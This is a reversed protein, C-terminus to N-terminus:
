TLPVWESAHGTGKAKVAATLREVVDRYQSREGPTMPWVNPNLGNKTIGVSVRYPGKPQGTCIGDGGALRAFTTHGGRATTWQGCFRCRGERTVVIQRRNREPRTRDPTRRKSAVLREAPTTM